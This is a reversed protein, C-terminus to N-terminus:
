TKSYSVIQTLDPARPECTSKIGAYLNQRAAFRRFDASKNTCIKSSVRTTIDIDDHVMHPTQCTTKNTCFAPTIGNQVTVSLGKHMQFLYCFHRFIVM